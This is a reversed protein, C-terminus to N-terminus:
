RLRREKDTLYRVMYATVAESKDAYVSIKKAGLFLLADAVAAAGTKTRRQHGERDGPDPHM